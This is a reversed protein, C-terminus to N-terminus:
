ILLKTQEALQVIVYKNGKGDACTLHHRVMCAVKTKTKKLIVTNYINPISKDGLLRRLFISEISEHKDKPIYLLPSEGLIRDKYQGIVECAYSSVCVIEMKDNVVVYGGSVRM